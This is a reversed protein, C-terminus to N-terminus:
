TTSPKQRRTMQLTTSVFIPKGGFAGCCTSKIQWGNQGM